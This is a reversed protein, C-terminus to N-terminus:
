ESVQAHIVPLYNAIRFVYHSAVADWDRNRHAALWSQPMARLGARDVASLERNSPESCAGIMIFFASCIATIWMRM